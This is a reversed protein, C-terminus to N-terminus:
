IEIIDIWCFIYIRIGDTHYNVYWRIFSFKKKIKRMIQGKGM